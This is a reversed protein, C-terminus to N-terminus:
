GFCGRATPKAAGECGHLSPRLPVSMQKQMKGELAVLRPVAAFKHRTVKAQPSFHDIGQYGRYSRVCDRFCLARSLGTLNDGADFHSGLSWRRPSLVNAGAHRQTLTSEESRVENTDFSLLSKKNVSALANHCAKTCSESKQRERRDCSRSTGRCSHKRKKPVLSRTQRLNSTRTQTNAMSHLSCSHKTALNAVEVADYQSHGLYYTQM